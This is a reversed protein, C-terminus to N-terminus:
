LRVVRKGAASGPELIRSGSVCRAYNKSPCNLVQLIRVFVFVNGSEGGRAFVAPNSARCVFELFHSSFTHKPLIVAYRQGPGLEELLPLVLSVPTVNKSWGFFFFLFCFCWFIAM